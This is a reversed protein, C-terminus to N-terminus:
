HLAIGFRQTFSHFNSLRSHDARSAPTGRFPAHFQSQEGSSQLAQLPKDSARSAIRLQARWEAPPTEDGVSYENRSANLKTQRQGHDAIKM